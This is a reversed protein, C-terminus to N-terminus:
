GVKTQKHSTNVALVLENFIRLCVEQHQLACNSNLYGLDLINLDPSDTLQCVLKSYLGLRETAEVFESDNSSIRPLCQREPDEHRAVHPVVEGQHCPFDERNPLVPVRLKYPIRRSPSRLMYCHTM